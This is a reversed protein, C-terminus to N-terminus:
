EKGEINNVWNIIDVVVDEFSKTFPYNEVSVDSDLVEGGEAKNWTDLLKLGADKFEVLANIVEVKDM